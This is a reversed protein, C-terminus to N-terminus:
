EFEKYEGTVGDFYSKAEMIIFIKNFTQAMQKASMEAELRTGFQVIPPSPFGPQFIIWFKKM